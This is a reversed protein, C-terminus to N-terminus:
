RNRFFLQIEEDYLSKKRMEDPISLIIKLYDTLSEKESDALMGMFLSIDDQHDQAYILADIYEKRKANPIVAIPYGEQCLALNMMLRAVHGNGDRFPHISILKCHIRSAYEIPHLSKAEPSSIWVAFDEMLEQIKYNPPYIHGTGAARVDLIRYRGAERIDTGRM